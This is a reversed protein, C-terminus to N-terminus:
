MTAKLTRHRIAYASALFFIVAAALASALPIICLHLLAPVSIEMQMPQKNPQQNHCATVLQHIILALAKPPKFHTLAQRGHYRDQIAGEAQHSLSLHCKTTPPPKEESNVHVPGLMLAWCSIFPSLAALPM